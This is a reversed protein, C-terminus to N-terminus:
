LRAYGLVDFVDMMLTMSYATADSLYQYPDASVLNGRASNSGSLSSSLQTNDRRGVIRTWMNVRLVGDDALGKM